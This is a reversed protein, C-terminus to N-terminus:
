SKDKNIKLEKRTSKEKSKTSLTSGYRAKSSFQRVKNIHSM